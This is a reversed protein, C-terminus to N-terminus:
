VARSWRPSIGVDQTRVEKSSLLLRGPALIVLSHRRRGRNVFGIKLEEDAPASWYRGDTLAGLATLRFDATATMGSGFSMSLGTDSADIEM